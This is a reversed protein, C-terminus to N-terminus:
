TLVTKLFVGNLTNLPAGHLMRCQPPCLLDALPPSTQPLSHSLLQQGLALSSRAGCPSPLCCLLALAVTVGTTASDTFAEWACSQSADFMLAFMSYKDSRHLWHAGISIPSFAETGQCFGPPLILCTFFPEQSSTSPSLQVAGPMELVFVDKPGLGCQHADAKVVTMCFLSAMDVVKPLSIGRRWPLDQAIEPAM